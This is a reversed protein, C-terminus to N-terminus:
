TRGARLAREAAAADPETVVHVHTGTSRGRDHGRAAVRPDARGGRGVQAPASAARTMAPFVVAAAVGILLVVTALRFTRGRVRQRIEREAVMGVLGFRAPRDAPQTM